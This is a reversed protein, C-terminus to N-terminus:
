FELIGSGVVGAPHEIKDGAPPASQPKQNTTSIRAEMELVAKVMNKIHLSADLDARGSSGTLKLDFTLYDSSAEVTLSYTCSKEGSPTVKMQVSMSEESGYYASASTDRKLIYSSGSKTFCSDGVFASLEAAAATAYDWARFPQDPDAFSLTVLLSGVTIEENPIFQSFPVAIWANPDDTLDAEVLAPSRLYLCKGEMDLILELKLQAFLDRYHDYEALEEGTLDSYASQIDLLLQFLDDLDVTYVAEAATENSLSKGTVSISYKKDGKISDLLTLVLDMDVAAKLSKGEKALGAGSATYLIRNLLTFERDIAEVAAQRDLLVATRYDSDWYVEYGLYQAFFAIPVMTRGDKIYSATDMTFTSGDPLDLVNTGIAHTFSYGELSVAATHTAKDYTVDAGLYEMAAALPVMTRDNKIEPRVDPFPICTGNVMVNIGEASGGRLEKEQATYQWDSVWEALMKQRFEEETLGHWEMYEQPSGYYSFEKDFYAYPDFAAYEAPHAAQFSELEKQQAEREMEDAAWLSLMEQRFEWETLGYAEMYEQASGYWPYNKEFYALHDFATAEEPHAALWELRVAEQEELQRQYEVLGAAMEYYEEETWGDALMEELSTYGWQEWLPPDTDEFAFAPLALSLTLALSLALSLLKSMSKKM